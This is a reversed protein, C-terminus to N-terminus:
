EFVSLIASRMKSIASVDYINKKKADHRAIYQIPFCFNTANIIVLGDYNFIIWTVRYLVNCLYEVYRM